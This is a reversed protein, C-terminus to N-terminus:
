KKDEMFQWKTKSTHKTDGTCKKRKSIFKGGLKKLIISVQAYTSVDNGGATVLAIGKERCVARTIRDVSVIFGNPQIKWRENIIERVTELM